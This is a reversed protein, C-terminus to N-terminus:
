TGGNTVFIGSGTSGHTVAGVTLTGGNLNFVSNGAVDNGIIM